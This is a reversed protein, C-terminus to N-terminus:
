SNLLLEDMCLELSGQWAPMELGFTRRLKENSLNSFLPRKAPLPYEATTIECLQPVNFPACRSAYQELIAKAFGFWSTSGAATMHYVGWLNQDKESQCASFLVAATAQAIMRSWTPAGQQDSVIKLSDREKALRLITLLFNKGRAGYVWSTRLILHKGGVSQIAQEGLLKTQGYANLPNPVDTEVYPISATGDFIYDTSYHVLLADLKKAEEAMVGPATSNIAHAADCDTEAKDVATYAAANVIIDPKVDQMVHRIQRANSLDLEHRDFIVIKGLLALTRQMEWGLQGDKGTILIKRM